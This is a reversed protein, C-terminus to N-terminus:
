PKKNLLEEAEDETKVILGIGGFKNVMETFAVQEVTARGTKTKVEVTMFVAIPRGVMEATIIVSKLGIIDSSGKCLGAHLVRANKILVDGSEVNVTEKKTFMKSAGVWATAVNNRFLRVGNIQGLRLMISRMLDGENM